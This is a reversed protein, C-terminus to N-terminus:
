QGGGLDLGDAPKGIQATGEDIDDKFFPGIDIPCSAPNQFVKLGYFVLERGVDVRNETGIGGTQAPPEGIGNHILGAFQVQGM